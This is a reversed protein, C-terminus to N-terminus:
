TLRRSRVAIKTRSFVREGDRSRTVTTTGSYRRASHDWRVRCRVKTRSIRSCSVKRHKGAKIRRGFKKRLASGSTQAAAALSLTPTRTLTESDDSKSDCGWDEAVDITGDGDNDIGDSCAPKRAPSSGNPQTGDPAPTPDATPPPPPVVKTIPNTDTLGFPEVEDLDYITTWCSCSSDYHRSGSFWTSTSWVRRFPRNALVAHTAELMVARRDQSVTVTAPVLGTFGTVSV